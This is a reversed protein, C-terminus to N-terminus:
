RDEKDQAPEYRGRKWNFKFRGDRNPWRSEEKIGINRSRIRISKAAAKTQLIGDEKNCSVHEPLVDDGGAWHAAGVHGLVWDIGYIPTTKGEIKEKCRWCRGKGKEWYSLIQRRTYRKRPM